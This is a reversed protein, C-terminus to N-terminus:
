CNSNQCPCSIKRNELIEMRAELRMNLPYQPEKGPPHFLQSMLHVREEM